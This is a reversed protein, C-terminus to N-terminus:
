NRRDWRGHEQNWKGDREVWRHPQYVYGERERVHVGGVWVHNNDRYDWYGPAWVYGARHEPVVEFRVAPPGINVQLDVGALASLPVAVAGIMGAAFLMSVLVKKVLM